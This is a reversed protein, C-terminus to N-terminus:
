CFEAREISRGLVMFQYGEDRTMTAEATGSILAARDRVWGFVVPPRANGIHVYNYVTPGCVYMTVRAPDRPVFTEAQRTLSNYLRLDM